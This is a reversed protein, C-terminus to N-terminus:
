AMTSFHDYGQNIARKEQGHQLVQVNSGEVCTGIQQFSIQKLTERLTPCACFLLGYDEGGSLALQLAEEEDALDQRLLIINLKETHIQLQVNSAQAIHNADQLLGDSIDICCRIGLERLQKGQKLHPTIKSFADIFVSSTIGQQWHQLGLAAHGLEGYLWLDDGVKATSRQMVKQSPILGAVTLNLAPYPAKVTDGGAIEIHHRQCAAHIGAAIPKAQEPQQLFVTSWVWTAEAGMAALDSLAACVARDSAQKLPFDEPWHSGMVSADSSVVLEYGDPIAHVSADDGNGLQTAPHQYDHKFYQNILKFEHNM